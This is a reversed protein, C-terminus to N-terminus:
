CVEMMTVSSAGTGRQSARALQLETSTEVESFARARKSLTLLGSVL